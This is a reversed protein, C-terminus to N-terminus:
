AAQSQQRQILIAETEPIADLSANYITALKECLEEYSDAYQHADNAHKLLTISKFASRPGYRVFLVARPEDMFVRFEAALDHRDPESPDRHRAVYCSQDRAIGGLMSCDGADFVHKEPITLSGELKAALLAHVTEHHEQQLALLTEIVRAKNRAGEYTALLEGEFGISTIGQSQKVQLSAYGNNSVSQIARQVRMGREVSYTM